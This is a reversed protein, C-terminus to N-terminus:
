TPRPEESAVRNTRRGYFRTGVAAATSDGADLHARSRFPNISSALRTRYASLSKTPMAVRTAVVVRIRRVNKLCISNQNPRRSFNM